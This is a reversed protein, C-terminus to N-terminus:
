MGVAMVPREPLGIRGGPELDITMGEAAMFVPLAKGALRGAEVALADLEEDGHTPDHHFLALARAGAQKAVEVAYAVTSHGWHAKVAFEEDTYQADHVLLDVGECLEFAAESVEAVVLGDRSPAQHDGLYAMSVGAVEIRYGLTRGVHPVERAKVRAPGAQVVDGDVLEFFGLEAPLELLGVPFYPPQVFSAFAEGLPGVQAPGYVDLRVDARLAPGFFPLGQVHDFHLHTVFASLALL